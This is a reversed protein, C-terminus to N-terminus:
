AFSADSRAATASKMRRTGLTRDEGDGAVAPVAEGDFVPDIALRGAGIEADGELQAMRICWEKEIDLKM